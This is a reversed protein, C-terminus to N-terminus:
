WFCRNCAIRTFAQPGNLLYVCMIHKEHVLCNYKYNSPVRLFALRIIFYTSNEMKIELLHQFLFLNWFRHEKITLPRPCPNSPMFTHIEELLRLFQETIGCFEITKEGSFEIQTFPVLHTLSNSSDEVGINAITACDSETRAGNPSWFTSGIQFHM